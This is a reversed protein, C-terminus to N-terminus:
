QFSVHSVIERIMVVMNKRGEGTITDFVVARKIIVCEGMGDDIERIM